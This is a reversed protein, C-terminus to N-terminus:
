FTARLLINMLTGSEALSSSSEQYYGPHAIATVWHKVPLGFHSAQLETNDKVVNVAAPWAQTDMLRELLLEQYQQEIDPFEEHLRHAKVIRCADKLNKRSVLVKM